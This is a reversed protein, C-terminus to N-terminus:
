LFILIISVPIFNKFMSISPFNFGTLPDTNDKVFGYCMLSVRDKNGGSVLSIM